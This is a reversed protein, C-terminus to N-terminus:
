RRTNFQEPSEVCFVCAHVRALHACNRTPVDSLDPFPGISVSLIPVTSPSSTSTWATRRSVTVWSAARVVLRTVSVVMVVLRLSPASRWSDMISRSRSAFLSVELLTDLKLIETSPSVARMEM